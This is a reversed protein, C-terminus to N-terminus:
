PFETKGVFKVHLRGDFSGALVREPRPGGSIKANGYASNQPSFQPSKTLEGRRDRFVVLGCCPPGWGTKPRCVSETRREAQLRRTVVIHTFRGSCTLLSPWSLM